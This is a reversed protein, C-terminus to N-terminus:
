IPSSKDKQRIQCFLLIDGKFYKAVKVWKTFPSTKKKDVIKFEKEILKTFQRASWNHVHTPDFLVKKTLAGWVLQVPVPHFPNAYAFIIYGNDKLLNNKVIKLFAM